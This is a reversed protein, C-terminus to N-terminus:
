MLEQLAGLASFAIGNVLMHFLTSGWISNTREYCRALLFSVPIYQIIYIWNGPTQLAYPLVHYLSFLLTSAAYAAIRNKRRILGFIGARFMMEEVLPGLYVVAAEVFRSNAAATEMVSQNNPNGSGQPLGLMIMGVLFNAIFMWGYSSMVELLFRFPRDAMPDFDRRLFGFAVSVMYVFGIAYYLLNATAQTLTGNKALTGLVLQLVAVHIPIYLLVLIAESRSLSSTFPIEERKRM